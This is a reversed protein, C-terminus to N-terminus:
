QRVINMRQKSQMRPEPFHSQCHKVHIWAHIVNAFLVISKRRAVILAGLIIDGIACVVLNAGRLGLAMRIQISIRDQSSHSHSRHSATATAPATARPKPHIAPQSAPQSCHEPSACGRGGLNKEQAKTSNTETGQPPQKTVKQRQIPLPLFLLCSVLTCNRLLNQTLLYFFYNNIM